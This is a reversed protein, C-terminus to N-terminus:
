YFTTPHSYGNKRRDNTTSLKKKFEGATNLWWVENFLSTNLPLCRLIQLAHNNIYRKRSLIKM